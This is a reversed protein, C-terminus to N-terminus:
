DLPFDRDMGSGPDCRNLISKASSTYNSLHIIKPLGIESFQWRYPDSPEGKRFRIQVLHPMGAM